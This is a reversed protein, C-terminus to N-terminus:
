GEGGLLAPGDTMPITGTEAPGALLASLSAIVSCTLDEVTPYQLNQSIKAWM